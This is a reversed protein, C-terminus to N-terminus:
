APDDALARLAECLDQVRRTWTENEAFGMRRLRLDGDPEALARGIAAAFAEAGQAVYILDGLRDLEPLPVAVVPKGPALYEYLKIPDTAVTVANMLFPLMCCDFHYLFEPITEYPQAGLLHVNPLSALGSLDLNFVEGVLVFQYQPRARAVAEVLSVDFWHAIAGFFGVIPHPIGSLRANPQCRSRIFAADGGNRILRVRRASSQWKRELGGSSVVTLDSISVLVREAEVIEATMGPFVEWDDMCDYVVPWGWQERAAMAVPTWFPFQVVIVRNSFGARGHLTEISSLTLVVNGPDMVSRYPGFPREVPTQAVRVGTIRPALNETNCAGTTPDEAFRNPSVYFVRHGQRALERMLQQPRQFRFDWDIVALCVIDFRSRHAHRHIVTAGDM